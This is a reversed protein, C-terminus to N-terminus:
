KYPSVEKLTQEKLEVEEQTQPDEQVEELLEEQQVKVEETGEEQKDKKDLEKDKYPNAFREMNAM